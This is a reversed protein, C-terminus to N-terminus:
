NRSYITVSGNVLEVNFKQGSLYSMNGKEGISRSCDVDATEPSYSSVDATCDTFGTNSELFSEVESGNIRTEQEATDDVAGFVAGGVVAVVVIMWGYTALYEFFRNNYETM